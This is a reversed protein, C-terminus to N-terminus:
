RPTRGFTTFAQRELEALFSGDIVSWTSRAISIVAPYPVRSAGSVSSSGLGATGTALKGRASNAIEDRVCMVERGLQAARELRMNGLVCSQAEDV